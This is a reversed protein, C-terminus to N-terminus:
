TNYLCVSTIRHLAFLALFPLIVFTGLILYDIHLLIVTFLQGPEHILIHFVQNSYYSFSYGAPMTGKTIIQNAAWLLYLVLLPGAILLSKQIFSRDPRANSSWVMWAIATILGIVMSWGAARTFLLLFLSIGTLADWISPYRRNLSEFVFWISFIALPIFLAESMLLFTNMTVSPMISTLLAGLLAVNRITVKSLLFYAPYLISSTLIANIILMYHYAIFKDTTLFNAISIFFAYGPPFPGPPYPHSSSLLMGTYIQKALTDYALEDEFIQPSIFITSLFVKVGTLLIFFITLIWFPNVKFIQQIKLTSLNEVM